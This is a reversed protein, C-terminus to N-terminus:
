YYCLQPSRILIASVSNRRECGCLSNCSYRLVFLFWFQWFISSYSLGIVLSKFFGCEDLHTPPTSNHLCSSLHMHCHSAASTTASHGTGYDRMTSLIWYPYRPLSCDWGWALGWLSLNQVQSISGWLKQSYFDTPTPAVSYVAPNEPFDM